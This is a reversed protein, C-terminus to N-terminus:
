DSFSDSRASNCALVIERSDYPVVSVLGRRRQFFDVAPINPFDSAVILVHGFDKGYLATMVEQKREVRRFYNSLHDSRGTFRAEVLTPVDAEIVRDLSTYRRGNKVAVTRGTPSEYTAIGGGHEPVWVNSFHEPHNVLADDICALLYSLSLDVGSKNVCAIEYFDPKHQTLFSCLSVVGETVIM